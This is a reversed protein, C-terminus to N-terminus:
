RNFKDMKSKSEKTRLQGGISLGNTRSNPSMGFMNLYQRIESKTEKLVAVAPNIKTIEKRDGQYTITFGNESIDDNAMDYQALNSALMGITTRDKYQLPTKAEVLDSYIAEYYFLEEDSRIFEPPNELIEKM